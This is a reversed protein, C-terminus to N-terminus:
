RWSRLPDPHGEPGYSLSPEFTEHPTYTNPMQKPLDNWGWKPEYPLAVTPTGYDDEYPDPGLDPQPPPGGPGEGGGPPGGAGEDPPGGAGDAPPGGEGEGEPPPGGFGFGGGGPTGEAPMTWDHNSKIHWIKWGDAEKVCDVLMHGSTWWGKMVGEGTPGTQHGHDYALYRAYNGDGSLELIITHYTHANMIGQGVVASPDQKQALAQQELRKARIGDVYYARIDDFGVFYGLNNSLSATSQHEPESVWLERLERERWDNQKYYCRRSLLDKIEEKDWLRTLLEEETYRQNMM